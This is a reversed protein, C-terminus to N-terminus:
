SPEMPTKPEEHEPFSRQEGASYPVVAGSFVGFLETIVEYGMAICSVVPASYMMYGPLRLMSSKFTMRSLVLSTGFKAVIVLFLIVLVRSMLYLVLRGRKGFRDYLMDLQAMSGERYCLPLTLYAFWIMSIRALEETWSISYDSIRVVVHRNLIQLLVSSLNIIVFLIILVSLAKCLINSIKHLIHYIKQLANM